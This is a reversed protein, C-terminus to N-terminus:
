SIGEAGFTTYNESVIINISKIMLSSVWYGDTDEM